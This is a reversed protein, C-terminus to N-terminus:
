LGGFGGFDSPGFSSFGGFDSADFGICAKETDETDETACEETDETARHKQTKPPV